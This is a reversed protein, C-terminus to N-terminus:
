TMDGSTTSKMLAVRFLSDITFVKVVVRKSSSGSYAKLTNGPYLLVELVRVLRNSKVVDGLIGALAEMKARLTQLSEQFAQKFHFCRVKPGMRPVKMTALMFLEVEHLSIPPTPPYPTVDDPMTVPAHKILDHTYGAAQILKKHEEDSPLIDLLGHLREVSLFHCEFSLVSM